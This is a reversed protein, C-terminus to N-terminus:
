EPLITMPDTECFIVQALLVIMTIKMSALDPELLDSITGLHLVIFFNKTQIESTYSRLSKSAGEM